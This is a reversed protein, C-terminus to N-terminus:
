YKVFRLIEGKNIRIYYIGSNFSSIDIPVQKTNACEKEMVLSGFVSYIELHKIDAGTLIIETSAPNPYLTYEVSNNDNIGVAQVTIQQYSTDSDLGRYAIHMVQYVGPTQYSHYTTDYIVSYEGDGFDWYCSNNETSTSIFRVDLGTQQLYSFQSQIPNFNDNWTSLGNFVVENTYYQISSADIASITAPYYAGIPSDNFIKAYFVCAALYTGYISPHSGDGSYLNFSSVSDRVVKWAVGVEAITTHFMKYMEFYTETLRKQNGFYTCLIPYSACNSVDGNEKGWTMFFMTEALPNYQKILSNLSDGYPIVIDDIQTPHFSPVQSQDQLVVIDWAGAQIKSISTTNTYHDGLTHGGPTNMDYQLINGKSKAISDLMVPLTGNSATYSNGLFLVKKTTQSYSSISLITTILLFLITKRM